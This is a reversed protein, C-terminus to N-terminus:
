PTHATRVQPNMCLQNDQNQYWCDTNHMVLGPIDAGGSTRGVIISPGFLMHDYWWGSATNTIDALWCDPQPDALVLKFTADDRFTVFDFAGLTDRFAQAPDAEQCQVYFSATCEGYTGPTHKNQVQQAGEGDTTVTVRRDPQQNNQESVILTFMYNGSSTQNLRARWQLNSRQEWNWGVEQGTNSSAESTARLRM